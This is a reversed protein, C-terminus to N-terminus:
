GSAEHRKCRYDILCRHRSSFGGCHAVAPCCSCYTSHLRRTPASSPAESSTRGTAGAWHACTILAAHHCWYGTLVLQGPLKVSAELTLENFDLTCATPHYRRLSNNGAIRLISRSHLYSLYRCDSWGLTLTSSFFPSFNSRSSPSISCDACSSESTHIQCNADIAVNRHCMSYHGSSGCTEFATYFTTSKKGIQASPRQQHCLLRAAYGRELVSSEHCLFVCVNSFPLLSQKHIDLPKLGKNFFALRHGLFYHGTPLVPHAQGATATM